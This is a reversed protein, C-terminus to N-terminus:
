AASDTTRYTATIAENSGDYLAQCRFLTHRIDNGTANPGDVEVFDLSPTTVTIRPVTSGGHAIDGDFTAVSAGLASAAAAAQFRDYQTTNAFELGLEVTVMRPGNELPEKKLASGRIFRRDVNLPNEIRCKWSTLEVASGGITASGNVFSFVRFDSTYSVSALATGTDWDEFDCDISAVLVGEPDMSLEAAVVKGGHFTFAKDAADNTQRNVQATFMDGTLDAITFTQTYNSDTAGSIAAGGFIMKMMLGFGKTPVDMTINGAAGLRYPLRRDTREVRAGSRLGSAKTRGMRPNLTESTYEYFRDVVVPTGYTSEAKIGLQNAFM